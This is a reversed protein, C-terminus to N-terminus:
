TKSQISKIQGPKLKQNLKFWRWHALGNSDIRGSAIIPNPKESVLFM